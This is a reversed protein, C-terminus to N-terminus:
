KIKAVAEERTRISDKVNKINIDNEEKREVQRDIFIPELESFAASYKQTPPFPNDKKNPNDFQMGIKGEWSTGPAIDLDKYYSRQINLEAPKLYGTDNLALKAVEKGAEDSFIVFGSMKKIPLSSDNQVTVYAVLLKTIETPKKYYSLEEVPEIKNFILKIKEQEKAYNEYEAATKELEVLDGKMDKIQAEMKKKRIVGGQATIESVSLGDIPQLLALGEPGGLASIWSYLLPIDKEKVKRIGLGDIESLIAGFNDLFIEREGEPVADYIKQISETYAKDSSLDITPGGCGTLLLCMVLPAAFLCLKMASKM